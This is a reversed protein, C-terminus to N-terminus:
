VILSLGFWILFRIRFIKEIYGECELWRVVKMCKEIIDDISLSDCENNELGYSNLDVKRKRIMFFDFEFDDGSGDLRM